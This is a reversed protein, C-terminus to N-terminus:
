WDQDVFVPKTDYFEPRDGDVSKTHDSCKKEALERSSYIGLIREISDIGDCENVIAAFLPNDPSM